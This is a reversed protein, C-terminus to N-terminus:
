NFNLVMSGYYIKLAQFANKKKVILWADGKLPFVM